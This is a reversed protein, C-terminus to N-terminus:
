RHLLPLLLLLLLMAKVIDIGHMLMTAHLLLWPQLQAAVASATGRFAAVAAVAHCRHSCAAGCLSQNCLCTWPHCSHGIPCLCSRTDVDGGIMGGAAAGAAAAAAAVADNVAPDGKLYKSLATSRRHVLPLLIDEEFATGM